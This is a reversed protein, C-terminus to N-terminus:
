HGEGEILDDDCPALCHGNFGVGTGRFIDDIADDVNGLSEAQCLYQNAKSHLAILGHIGATVTEHMGEDRAYSRWGSAKEVKALYSRWLDERREIEVETGSKTIVFRWGTPVLVESLAVVSAGSGLYNRALSAIITPDASILAAQEALQERLASIDTM